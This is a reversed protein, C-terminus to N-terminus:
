GFDSGRMERILKINQKGADGYLRTFLALKPACNKKTRKNRKKVHKPRSYAGDDPSIVTDIRCQYKDSQISSQRTHLSTENWGAYWVTM